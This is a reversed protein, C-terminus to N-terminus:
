ASHTDSLLAPIKRKADQLIGAVDSGVVDLMEAKLLHVDRIGFCETCLEKLYEYSYRPDYPGGATTVYYLSEARCLGQPIGDEGYRSVIGTVYINEIYMRLIAPFSLDWYPASIVIKDASAFERAYAFMPDDFNGEEIQKTRYELREDSLVSLPEEALKRERFEPDLQRLLERALEDTRSNKRVCANIYLTMKETGKKM